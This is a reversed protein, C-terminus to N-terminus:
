SLPDGPHVDGGELVRAFFGERPMVCDGMTKFIQCRSHCTKGITTVELAAGSPLHLVRGVEVDEITLGEVVLNEAFMGHEIELGKARMKNISKVSLLSVQRSTGAHADGELGHDRVLRGKPVPDKRIGTRSSLCISLIRATTM